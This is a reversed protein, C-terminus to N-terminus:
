GVNKPASVRSTSTGEQEGRPWSKLAHFVALSEKGGPSEPGGRSSARHRRSCFLDQTLAKNTEIVQPINTEREGERGRKEVSEKGRSRGVGSAKQWKVERWGGRIRAQGLLGLLSLRYELAGYVIRREPNGFFGRAM